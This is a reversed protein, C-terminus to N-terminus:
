RRQPFKGRPRDSRSQVRARTDEGSAIFPGNAQLLTLGTVFRREVTRKPSDRTKSALFTLGHDDGAEGGAGIARQMKAMGIGGHNRVIEHVRPLYGPPMEVTGGVGQIPEAIFGAIAGSTEHCIVEAVERVSGAVAPGPEGETM